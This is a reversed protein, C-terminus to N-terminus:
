SSLPFCVANTCCFDALVSQKGLFDNVSKEERVKQGQENSGAQPLIVQLEQHHSM